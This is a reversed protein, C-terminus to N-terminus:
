DSFHKWNQLCYSQCPTCCKRLLFIPVFHKAWHTGCELYSVIKNKLILNTKLSKYSGTFSRSNKHFNRYRLFSVGVGNRGHKITISGTAVFSHSTFESREYRKAPLIAALCGRHEVIAHLRSTPPPYSLQLWQDFRQHGRLSLVLCGRHWTSGIPRVRLANFFTGKLTEMRGTDLSLVAALMGVSVGGDHHQPVKGTIAFKWQDLDLAFMFAQRFKVLDELWAACQSYWPGAAGLLQPLKPNALFFNQNSDSRFRTTSWWVIILCDWCWRGYHPPNASQPEGSTSHCGDLMLGGSLVCSDDDHEYDIPQGLLSLRISVKWEEFKILDRCQISGHVQKTQFKIEWIEGIGLKSADCAILTLWIEVFNVLFVLNDYFIQYQVFIAMVKPSSHVISWESCFHACKMNKISCQPM